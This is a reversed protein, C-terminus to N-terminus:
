STGKVHCVPDHPLHCEGSSAMLILVLRRSHCTMCAWQAWPGFSATVVLSRSSPNIIVPTGDLRKGLWWNLQMFIIRCLLPSNSVLKRMLWYKVAVSVRTGMTDQWSLFCSDDFTLEVSFIRKQGLRTLVVWWNCRISEYRPSVQQQTSHVRRWDDCIESWSSEWSSTKPQLCLPTRRSSPLTRGIEPITISRKGTCECDTIRNVNLFLLTFRSTFTNAFQLYSEWASFDLNKVQLTLSLWPIWWPFFQSYIVGPLRGRRIFEIRGFRGRTSFLVIPM